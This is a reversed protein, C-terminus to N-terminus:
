KQVMFRDTLLLEGHFFIVTASLLCRISLQMKLVLAVITLEMSAEDFCTGSIM